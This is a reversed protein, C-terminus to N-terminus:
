MFAFLGEMYNMKLDEKVAPPHAIVIRELNDEIDKMLRTSKVNILIPTARGTKPEQLYINRFIGERVAVLNLWDVKGIIVMDNRQMADFISQNRTFSVEKKAKKMKKINM